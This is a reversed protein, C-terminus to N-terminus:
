PERCNTVIETQAIRSVLKPSAMPNVLPNSMPPWMTLVGRIGGYGFGVYPTYPGVHLYMSNPFGVLNQEM